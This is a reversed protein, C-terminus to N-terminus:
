RRVHASTTLLQEYDPISGAVTRESLAASVPADTVKEKSTMHLFHIKQVHGVFFFHRQRLVRDGLM